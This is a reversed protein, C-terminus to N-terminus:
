CWDLDVHRIRNEELRRRLARCEAALGPVKHEHTECFVHDIQDITGTDILHNLIWAEAGEVDLKLVRVRRGLGKIFDALDITEVEVFHDQSLNRKGEALSSGCSHLVPDAGYKRHLFLRASGHRDSVARDLCTVRPDGAFRAELLAFADPNPEFAYVRAGRTVLEPSIAGINAGCDIAIEGPEFAIQKFRAVAARQRPAKLRQNFRSMIYNLPAIM